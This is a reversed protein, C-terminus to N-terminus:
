MKITAVRRSSEWHTVTMFKSAGSDVLLKLIEFRNFKAAYHVATYGEADNENLVQGRRRYLLRKVIEM